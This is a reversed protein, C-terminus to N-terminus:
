PENGLRMAPVKATRQQTTWKGFGHNLHIADRKAFNPLVPSPAPVLDAFSKRVLAPFRFSFWHSRGDDVSTRLASGLVNSDTMDGVAVQEVFRSFFHLAGSNLNAALVTV